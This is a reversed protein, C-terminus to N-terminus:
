IAEKAGDRSYGSLTGSVVLSVGELASSAPGSEEIDDGMRVGAADLRQVLERNVPDAAWRVVEAAIVPGVGDIQAIADVDADLLAVISGVGRIIRRAVTSGVHRIGLATLLRAAPRDKAETIARGLNTVSIEGWGEEELLVAPDFTFIDAPDSILDKRLLLDITGLSQYAALARM